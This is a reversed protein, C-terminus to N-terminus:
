RSVIKTFDCITNFEKALKSLLNLRNNKINEDKDMVLVKEFFNNLPEVFVKIDKINEYSLKNSNLIVDYLAKEEDFVFLTKNIESANKYDATIRLVRNVAELISNLDSSKVFNNVAEARKVWNSLDALPNSNKCALLVDNDYTKEYIVNLRGYFFEVIEDFLVDEVSIDFEDHILDISKQIVKLLDLKLNFTTITRLIGLIARRVGLPDNSGTPRKKKKDGQTSMFVAVITDIKDAISVVQGEIRSPLDSGASLPFYHEKVALAVAEKENSKLAYNEGIFGQLETFEFVLKTSLDAKCLKAARLIDDKDNIQLLDCIYDSLKEIRRTKDLLTGLGRQFTMGSLAEIKSELSTKIDDDYFFKGDELRASIVRQNGKKINEFSESDVGVFNAMTIFKNSLKGNKEYLPFYRQHKSMVTTTVIDPIQLYDEKFDCIVPIPYETIYTVEDLLDDLNSFDITCEIEAAKKTASDIIIQKREEVDAYVKVTKLAEVYDNPNEIKVEKIDSFRHGLTVNTAKKDFLEVNLIENNFLAVINEIPRSFKEEFYGWRMFHSGQLKMILPKINEELIQKSTKGKQEIKAWIYNDKQYLSEVSVNNKKAFGVAAPSYSGDAALAINLIPGKVDKIVDEQQSSLGNILVALRRPTAYTKVEKYQLKNEELLKKFNDVLQKEASPIFQYPLEQVLIELLFNNEM